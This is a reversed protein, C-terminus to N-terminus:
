GRADVASARLEAGEVLTVDTSEKDLNAGLNFDVVQPVFLAHQVQFTILRTTFVQPGISMVKPFRIMAVGQDDSLHHQPPGLLTDHWYGHGDFEVMRMAYPRVIANRVPRGDRDIVNVPITTMEAWSGEDGEIRVSDGAWGCVSAVKLTLTFVLIIHWRNSRIAPLKGPSAISVSTSSNSDPM